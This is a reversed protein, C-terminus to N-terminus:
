YETNTFPYLETPLADTELVSHRPNLDKQGQWTPAFRVKSRKEKDLFVDAWKRAGGIEFFTVSTEGIGKCARADCRRQAILKERTRRRRMTDKQVAQQM